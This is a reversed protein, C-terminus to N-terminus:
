ENNDLLAREVLTKTLSLSLGMITDFDGDYHTVFAGGLGQIGYSGAKDMPEGTAIYERIQADSLSRFFVRSSAVGSYVKGYYHVAVGTHVNHARGSLSVLMNYAEDENAPKGLPAGDLEVLTDSSIVLCDEALKSAVASGKRIALLETGSRIDIGFPLSEDVEETLIDFDPYIRMLLERRRPSKSALVIKKM